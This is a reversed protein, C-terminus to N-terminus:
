LRVFWTLGTDLELKRGTAKVWQDVARDVEFRYRGKDHGYDHGGLWGGGLVKPAWAEIDALTGEFSHDGDIFVLDLCDDDCRAAAAVSGMHLLSARSGFPALRQEALTKHSLAEAKTLKAHADLTAVYSAPQKERGAWNDVGVYRLKQHQQLLYQALTATSVGVEVLDCAGKPLRRLIPAARELM